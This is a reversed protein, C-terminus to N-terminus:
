LFFDMLIKLSLPILLCNLIKFLFLGHRRLLGVSLLGLSLLDVSLLGVSLLGLVM